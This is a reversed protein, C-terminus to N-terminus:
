QYFFQNTGGLYQWVQIKDGDQGATSGADNVDLVKSQNGWLSTLQTYGGVPGYDWYQNPNTTANNLCTYLQVPAGDVFGGNNRADLCKSGYQWNVIETWVTGGSPPLVMAFWWQNAHNVSDNFCGWLQVKDGNQGATSGANNADTCKQYRQNLLDVIYYTAQPSVTLNASRVTAAVSAPLQSGKVAVRHPSPTNVVWAPQTLPRTAATPKAAAAATAPAALLGIGILMGLMATALAAITRKGRM